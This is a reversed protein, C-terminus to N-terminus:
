ITEAIPNREKELQDLLLGSKQAQVPQGPSLQQQELQETAQMAEEVYLALEDESIGMQDLIRSRIAHFGPDTAQFLNIANSYSEFLVAKSRQEDTTHVIVKEGANKIFEKIDTLKRKNGKQVMDRKMAQRLTDVMEPSLVQGNLSAEVVKDTLASEVIVKDILQLEKKSFTEFIEGDSAAEELADPLIWDEVIEKIFFGMDEREQEFQSTGALNQMYQARFPTGSKSEEGMVAEFSSTNKDASVDWSQDIAQFMPVSNPMVNAQTFTRGEGVKLITGHDIGEDYITDVVEGDDTVFLVKGGIAVARAEETRYFNHWRQHESLEEPIGEGLGRGTMPHRADYKYPFEEESIEVAKLVIGENEGKEDKGLPAIIISAWVYELEDEEEYDKGQAEYLMSLPVEGHLENVEILRGITEAEESSGAKIEKDRSKEAATRIVDDVNDWGTKKLDSPRMYHKEIIPGGLIDSMDTVVNEWPVYHIGDATKKAIFGGYEARIYAYKNLFPGFKIARMKKHLAKTAVLMSARAEDSEDVPESEIHKFDFDTSRAELRIRYKSINDYPFDGIIDDYANEDIYKNRRTFNIAKILQMQSYEDGATIPITRTDYFRKEREIFDYVQM